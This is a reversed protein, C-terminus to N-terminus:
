VAEEAPLELRPFAPTPNEIRIAGLAPDDALAAYDRKDAPVCLADLIKASAAPTVPSVAVALDRICGCLTALVREMRAPDTKRLTWPAQEDIYANCAFVAQMWGELGATFSLKEFAEPLEKACAQLVKARLESDAPEVPAAATFGGDCNKAIFSMVRQALNGFSNALESNARLVIAEQSWSGDSGFTVERLFFYRLVDVGYREALELPDTVNGLSKSEKQGRNLLFGHGYVQKPLELGASWLFAPWYVTHFRVIDKGILHLDAPWFKAMEPTQKPYGLGTLYNTLADVWVYMVHEENGPVKVGWDFSTRSVSLDRLGGEVFRLVENRRSEPEIFGPNTRYLELLRDQYASLRFFWSEEVTWEVPTGQPSLKEGGEGDSLESEDYYAEDRVSYWGEYRDLYLDGNAEMARWLAQSAEHHVAESTRIFRDYSVNLRDCMDKFLASMEDALERPTKGLDRAKQAMKLGHEDTGTQFRVERGRLRQFRAMVDAAIAEYAHGIHPPGNPYSIATTLYYPDAM